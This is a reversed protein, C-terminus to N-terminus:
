DEECIIETAVYNEVAASLTWHSLEYFRTPAIESAIRLTGEFNEVTITYNM